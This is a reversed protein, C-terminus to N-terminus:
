SQGGKKAEILGSRRVTARRGKRKAKVCKGHKGHVYGRRCPHVVRMKKSPKVPPSFNEGPSQSITSPILLPMPNTLPGQCADGSCPEPLAPTGAFGGGLRADYIDPAGDTDQPVLGESTSFFVDNGTPAIVADIVPTTGSGGSLLTVAGGKGDTGQHWEYINSLANIAGPSLAEASEFIIRSGDESIARNDMELQRKVSGGFYGLLISADAEGGNENGNAGFGEEGESIRELRGSIADFRYVDKATDTDDNTLQGYSSFVLYRGDKEATQAESRGNSLLWLETDTGSVSPCHSDEVTGSIDHASCLDGVFKVSDSKAFEYLNDAGVRPVQMGEGELKVRAAASLLDGEAVFYARSGDPAVRVVGKVNAPANNPNQSVQTMETVVRASTKCEAGSSCGLSAMYLDKGSDTDTSSLEAATTFFVTLGDESAGMFEANARKDAEGCPVETCSEAVPKSIEITKEGGLRAFLQHDAESNEVCGTFFVTHGDAAIANFAQLARSRESLHEIGLNPRCGPSIVSGANDIAVLRLVIPGDGCGASLEYLQPKANEAGELLVQPRTLISFEQDTFEDFYVHCFDQSAGLYRLQLPGEGLLALARGIVNWNVGTDALRTSHVVIAAEKGDQEAAENSPGTNGLALTAEMDPTIDRNEGLAVPMVTAPPTVPVTAWGTVTRRALYDFSDINQSLGTPAGAFADPAYYAVSGGDMGVAEVAPAGAGGKYLPSVQEFARGDPLAFASSSIAFFAGCAVVVTSFIGRVGVRRM